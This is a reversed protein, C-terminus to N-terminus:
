NKWDNRVPDAIQANLVQKLLSKEDENLIYHLFMLRRSMIIFRIPWSGTELYLMEKPCSKGVELIKRLLMEDVQELLEIEEIKLGYWSESNTLISNIFFSKRFLLGVEFVHPGYCTGDLITLIQNVVGIGKNRRALINKKTKGDFSVIDGLYKENEVTDLKVQGGEEDKLNESMTFYENTKKLKWNDVYLDPCQSNSVGIHMKHCKSTGFQLKKINSKANIYGNMLVSKLGCRTLCLLDDIM